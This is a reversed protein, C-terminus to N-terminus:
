AKARWWFHNKEQVEFIIQDNKNMEVCKVYFGDLDIAKIAFGLYSDRVM